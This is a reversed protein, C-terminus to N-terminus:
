MARPQFYDPMEPFAESPGPTKTTYKASWCASEFNPTTKRQLSEHTATERCPQLVFKGHRAARFHPEACIRGPRRRDAARHNRGASDNRPRHVRSGHWSRAGAARGGGALGHRRARQSTQLFRSARASRRRAVAVHARHSACALGSEPRSNAASLWEPLYRSVPADLDLRKQQELIMASTTTVMVKTMSAVDYITDESVAAAKADRTLKGFPHVILDDNLGLALVGGPFADNAVARDLLDFAPQLKATM